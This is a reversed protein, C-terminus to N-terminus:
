IEKITIVTMALERPRFSAAATPMTSFSMLKRNKTGDDISDDTDANPACFIPAPFGSRASFVRRYAIRSETEKPASDTRTICSAASGKTPRNEASASTIRRPPCYMRPYMQSQMRAPM